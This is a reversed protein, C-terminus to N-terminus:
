FNGDSAQIIPSLPEGASGSGPFTYFVSLSNRALAASAFGTVLLVTLKM